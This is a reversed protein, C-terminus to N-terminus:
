SQDRCCFNSHMKPGTSMGRCEAAVWQGTRRRQRGDLCDIGVVQEFARHMQLIAEASTELRQLRTTSQDLFNTDLSHHDTHLQRHVASREPCLAQLAPQEDVARM